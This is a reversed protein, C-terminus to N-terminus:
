KIFHSFYIVPLTSKLILVNSDDFYKEYDIFENCQEFCICFRVLENKIFYNLKNNVFQGPFFLSIIEPYKHIEIMKKLINYQLLINLASHILDDTFDIKEKYSSINLTKQAFMDNITNFLNYSYTWNISFNKDTIETYSFHYTDYKFSNIHTTLTYPTSETYIGLSKLHEANKVCFNQTLLNIIYLIGDTKEEFFINQLLYDMIYCSSVHNKIMLYKELMKDDLFIFISNPNYQFIDDMVNEPDGWQISIKRSALSIYCIKDMPIKLHRIIPENSECIVVCKSNYYIPLQDIYNSYVFDINYKIIDINNKLDIDLKEFVFSLGYVIYVFLKLKNISVLFRRFKHKM